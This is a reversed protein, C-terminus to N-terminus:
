GSRAAWGHRIPGFIDAAVQAQPAKTGLAFGFNDFFHGALQFVRVGFRQPQTAALILGGLGRAPVDAIPGRQGM